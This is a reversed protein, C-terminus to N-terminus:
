LQNQLCPYPESPSDSIAPEQQYTASVFCETTDNQTPRPFYKELVATVDGEQDEFLGNGLGERAEAVAAELTISERLGGLGLGM